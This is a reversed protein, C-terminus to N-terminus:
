YGLDEALIKKAAYPGAQDMIANARTEMWAQIETDKHQDRSFSRELIFPARLIKRAPTRTSDTAISCEDSETEPM